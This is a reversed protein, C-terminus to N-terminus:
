KKSRRFLRKKTPKRIPKPKSKKEAEVVPEKKKRSIGRKELERDRAEEKGRNELDLRKQFEAEIQPTMAKGAAWFEDLDKRAESDDEEIIIPRLAIVLKEVQEQKKPTWMIGPLSGILDVDSNMCASKIISSEDGEFVGWNIESFIDM